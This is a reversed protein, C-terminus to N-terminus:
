DSSGTFTGVPNLSHKANTSSLHCIELAILQGAGGASIYPVSNGSYNKVISFNKM